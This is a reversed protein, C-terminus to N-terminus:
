ILYAFDRRFTEPDIHISDALKKLNAPNNFDDADLRIMYRSAVEYGEGDVNVLARRVVGRAYGSSDLPEVDRDNVSIGKTAITAHRM